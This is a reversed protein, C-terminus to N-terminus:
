TIEFAMITLNYVHFHDFVSWVLYSAIISVRLRVTGRRGLLM